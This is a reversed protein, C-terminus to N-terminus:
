WRYFKFWDYYKSDKSNYAGITPFNNYKNFYISDSGIHNFVGDIIVNMGKSKAKQILELFDETSGFMSDIKSYDAVDNTSSAKDNTM